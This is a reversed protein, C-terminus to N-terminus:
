VLGDSIREASRVVAPAIEAAREASLRHAPAALTVAAWAQGEPNQIGAAVANLHVEAEEFNLAYGRARVEGVDRILEDLDRVSEPTLPTLPMDRYMKRLREDSMSSLIAKGGATCHAPVTQGVRSGARLAFDGEVCDAFLIDTGQRVVVHVTEHVEAVLEQLPQQAVTRLDISRLVSRALQLMAPGPGYDERVNRQQIFGRYVLMALLRHATSPAVGLLQSADSVGLSRQETFAILLRLANDVSEIPYKPPLSANAM